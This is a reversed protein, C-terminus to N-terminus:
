PASDRIYASKENRIQRVSEPHGVSRFVITFSAGHATRHGSSRPNRLRVQTWSSYVLDFWAVSVENSTRV